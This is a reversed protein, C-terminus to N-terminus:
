FPLDCDDKTKVPKKKESFKRSHEQKLAHLKVMRKALFSDIHMALDWMTKPAPFTMKLDFCGTKYFNECYDAEVPLLILVSPNDVMYGYDPCSGYYLRTEKKSISYHFDAIMGFDYHNDPDQDEEDIGWDECKTFKKQSFNYVELFDILEWSYKIHLDRDFRVTEGLKNDM